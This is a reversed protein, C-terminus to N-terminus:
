FIRYMADLAVKFKSFKLRRQAKHVSYVKLKALLQM